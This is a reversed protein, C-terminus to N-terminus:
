QPFTTYLHKHLILGTLAWFATIIYDGLILGIAFPIGRRYLRMGGYRLIFGKALWVIFLPCWLWEPTFTASLAYGVPHFPWWLWRSRMWALFVVMAAGAGGGAIEGWNMGEGSEAWTRLHNIPMSAWGTRYDDVSGTEAGFRYYLALLALFAVIIAIASATLIGKVMHRSKLNAASAIKLGEMQYPMNVCRYDWDFWQFYTLATLARPSINVPGVSPVMFLHPPHNPGFTWPLGAEARIRTFGLLTFFYIFFFLAILAVPIGSIWFFLGLFIGTALFGLLITRDSFHDKSQNQEKVGKFVSVIVNALHSRALWVAVLGLAVFAGLSQQNLYPMEVMAASAEPGRFGLWICVLDQFRAFWYFFWCSFLVELQVFYAIGLALPYFALTVDYFPSAQEAGLFRGLRLAGTPKIPLYPISPNIYNLGALSELIVPILFGIWLLKNKLLPEKERTLELPFYVIPFTLREREIWQRRLLLNISMMFSLFAFTFLSWVGIPVLWGKINEMTFFTTQGRYFGEWVSEKPIMWTPVYPWFQAWKNEPTAFKFIHTLMPVIFQVMGVGAISGAVTLMVYIYLLESRSLHWGPKWRKLLANVALFLILIFIAILMLSTTALEVFRVIEGYVVALVLLPVLIIGLLLARRSMPSAPTAREEAKGPGGQQKPSMQYQNM